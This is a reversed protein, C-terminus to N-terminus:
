LGLNALASAATAGYNVSRAITKPYQKRATPPRNPVKRKLTLSTPLLWSLSGQFQHDAGRGSGAEVKSGILLADEGVRLPAAGASSQMAAFTQDILDAACAGAGCHMNESMAPAAEVGHDPSKNRKKSASNM